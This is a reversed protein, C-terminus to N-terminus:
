PFLIGRIAKAIAPYKEQALVQLATALMLIAKEHLSLRKSVQEHKRKMRSLLEDDNEKLAEHREDNIESASEIEHEVKTLRHEIENSHSPQQWPPWNGTM